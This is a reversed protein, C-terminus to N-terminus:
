APMKAVYLLYISAYKGFIYSSRSEKSQKSWKYTNLICRSFYIQSINWIRISGHSTFHKKKKGSIWNSTLSQLRYHRSKILIESTLLFERNSNEVLHIWGQSRRLESTVLIVTQPGVDIDCGTRGSINRLSQTVPSTKQIMQAQLLCKAKYRQRRLLSAWRNTIRIGWPIITTCM